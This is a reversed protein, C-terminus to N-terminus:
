RLFDRVATAVETYRGAFFHDAGGLIVREPGPDLRALTCYQDRDGVVISLRARLSKAFTWDMIHVPPAIAVVRAIADDEVAALAGVWSGFSYGVIALPVGPLEARLATVAARVDGVEAIGDGYSGESRGVGGFNFRLAAVGDAALAGAVSTVVPNDMDGGYQPHPHCVVAAARPAGSPAALVAELRRPSAGVAM